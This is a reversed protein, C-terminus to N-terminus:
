INPVPSRVHLGDAQSISAKSDRLTEALKEQLVQVEKQLWVLEQPQLPGHPPEQCKQSLEAKVQEVCHLKWEPVAM